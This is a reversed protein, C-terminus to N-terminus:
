PELPGSYGCVGMRPSNVVPLFLEDDSRAEAHLDCYFPNEEDYLEETHLQTAAEGCVRCPWSPADNRALLRLPARGIRGEREATVKLTLATTSGFDYEHTFKLGPSLVEALKITMGREDPDRLFDMEDDLEYHVTYRHRNIDFASLHGCCELWIDRLFADLDALTASEKVEIDLWYPTSYADEARLQWLKAARGRTGDHAGPCSKLHRTLGAKSSQYGCLACSGRIPIKTM